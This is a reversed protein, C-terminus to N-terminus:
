SQSNSELFKEMVFIQEEKTRNESDYFFLYDVDDIDLGFMEGYDFECHNEGSTNVVVFRNWEWFYTFNEPFIVPLYGIACGGSGCKHERMDKLLTGADRHLAGYKEPQKIIIDMRFNEEPITKIYDIWMRFNNQQEENM